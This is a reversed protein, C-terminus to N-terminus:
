DFLIVTILKAVLRFLAACCCFFDHIDMAIPLMLLDKIPLLNIIIPQGKWISWLGTAMRRAFGIIPNLLIVDKILLLSLITKPKLGLRSGEAGFDPTDGGGAETMSFSVENKIWKHM